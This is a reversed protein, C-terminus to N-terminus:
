ILNKIIKILLAQDIYGMQRRVLRNERDFIYIKPVGLINFNIKVDEEAILVPLKIKEKILFKNVKSTNTDLCVSVIKLGNSGYIKNLDELVSLEKVCLPCWISWFMLILVKGKSNEIISILDETNVKKLDASAIHINLSFFFVFILLILVKKM